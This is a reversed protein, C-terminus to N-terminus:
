KNNKDLFFGKLSGLAGCFDPVNGTNNISPLFMKNLSSCHRSLDPTFVNVATIKAM